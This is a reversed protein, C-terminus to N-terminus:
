AKVREVSFSTSETEPASLADDLAAIAAGMSVGHDMFLSPRVAVHRNPVPVLHKNLQQEICELMQRNVLALNGGLVIASPDLLDAVPALTKALRDALRRLEDDFTGEPSAIALLHEATLTQESDTDLLADIEGAGFHAGRLIQGNVFMASGLSTVAYRDNHERSNILAYLFDSVDDAHGQRAEALAAFNSDNDLRVHTNFLEVLRPGLAFNELKFRTSRLVMGRQPDIVGSMGVGIALLKGAPKHQAAWQDIRLKLLQPMLDFPERLQLRDRDLVQGRSDLFVLSAADGDMDVGAVWGLDPAIELLVPKKGAGPTDLKGFTRIVGRGMLERTIYTLSSSRLGTRKALQQRSLPGEERLLHVILRRNLVAAGAQNVKTMLNM